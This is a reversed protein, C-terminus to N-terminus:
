GISSAMVVAPADSVDGRPLRPLRHPTAAPPRRGMAMFRNKFPPAGTILGDAIENWETIVDARAPSAVALGAALMLVPGYNM